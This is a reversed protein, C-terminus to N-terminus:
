IGTLIESNIDYEILFGQVLFAFDIIAVPARM